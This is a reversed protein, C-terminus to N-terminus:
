DLCLYCLACYWLQSDEIFPAAGFYFDICTRAFDLLILVVCLVAAILRNRIKASVLQYLSYRQSQSVLRSM